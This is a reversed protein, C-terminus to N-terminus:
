GGFYDDTFDKYTVCEKIYYLTKTVEPKRFWRKRTSVKYFRSGERELYGLEEAKIAVSNRSRGLEKAIDNCARGDEMYEGLKRVEETNWAEWFRPLYTKVETLSAKSPFREKRSWHKM